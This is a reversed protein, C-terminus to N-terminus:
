WCFSVPVGQPHRNRKSPTGGHIQVEGNAIKTRLAFNLPSTRMDRLALYIAYRPAILKVHFVPFTKQLNEGAYCIGSDLVPVGQPHRNRKSPTGGHIQVEGNAIKARLAFNLPSTRMDRLALYIAYRPAILKVHFVPFTKQLNEGAYCIGSDLTPVGQPHGNRKEKFVFRCNGL